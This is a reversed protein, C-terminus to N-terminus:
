PTPTTTLKRKGLSQPPNEPQIGMPVYMECLREYEAAIKSSLDAAWQQHEDMQEPSMFSSGRSLMVFLEEQISSHNIKARRKAEGCLKIDDIKM